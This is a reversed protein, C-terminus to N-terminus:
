DPDKIASRLHGGHRNLIHLATPLDVKRSQMVLAAKVQGDAQQLLQIAQERSLGSLTSVIRAARDRLKDNSAKLDVMLNEYVKGLRVMSLTTITNLIIKTATAAKLRTSGTLVEPGTLPRITIDVPAEGEFPQACTLFITGAGLERARVLAGQVFPTTGGAAIGMVVDAPGIRAQNMAAAGEEPRDEVGERAKFMADPGGALIGLVMAPDTRFTPPCEAADLVGLRGSTGAGVYILRGGAQFAEVVRGVARAIPEHQTAVAEVALRDQHNMMMVADITEMTDLNMSEPLRQETLIHSRNPTTM